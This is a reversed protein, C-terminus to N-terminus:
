NIILKSGSQGATNLGKQEEVEREKTEKEKKERPQSM